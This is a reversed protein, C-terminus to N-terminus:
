RTKCCAHQLLGEEPFVAEDHSAVLELEFVGAVANSGSRKVLPRGRLDEEVRPCIVDSLAGDQFPGVSKIFVFAPM